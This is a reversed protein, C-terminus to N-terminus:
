RKAKKSAPALFSDMSPQTSKKSSKVASSSKGAKHQAFAEKMWERNRKRVVEGDVIRQPYDRGLVCGYKVQDAKSLKWPEYIYKTPVHKLVPLYQRVYTGEPDHQKGFSVPSYCKWYQHFFNSCSLWQWNANNLAEDHDILFEQFVRAGEVWSLFLEGRTLFCAVAHRALHHIWGELRLQTMIADIFPYGTQGFKWARLHEPNELWPIQRVQANHEIHHFNPNRSAALHFMERFMLQGHLSMPPQSVRSKSLDLVHQIGFWFVRTSVCGFRLYPSLVTTSPEEISTPSTKPKEFQQVYTERALVHAMRRLGETEGGPFKFKFESFSSASEDSCLVKDLKPVGRSPTYGWNQHHNKKKKKSSSSSSSESSSDDDIIITFSPPLEVLSPLNLDSLPIPQPIKRKYFGKAFASFSSSSTSADYTELDFLTHGPAVHVSVDHRSCLERVDRDRTRAYPETAQEFSVHGINWQSLLTDFLLPPPGHLILLQSQFKARLQVDLDELSDILFQFGHPSSSPQNVFEPDFIFIPYLQANSGVVKEAAHLLPLNDTLRLGNRFWHLVNKQASSTTM